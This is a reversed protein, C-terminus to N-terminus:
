RHLGFQGFEFEYREPSPSAAIALLKQSQFRFHWTGRSVPVPADFCTPDFLAVNIGGGTDRASEYRIMQAAIGRALGAFRQCADHSSKDTWNARKKVFPPRTLDLARDAVLGVGFMLYETTTAPLQAAPSAAFFRLRWYAMEILCTETSESAYFVGPREGAQRFRSASRHGYRFPTALLYHLGRAAEPLRPKAQEILLELRDEEALTDTLRSTSIRHQAEVIRFVTSRYRFFDAPTPVGTM